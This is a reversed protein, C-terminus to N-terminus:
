PLDITFLGPGTPERGFAALVDETDGFTLVDTLGNANGNECTLFPPYPSPRLGRM